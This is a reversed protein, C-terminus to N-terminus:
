KKKTAQQLNATTTQVVQEFAQAATSMAKQMVDLMQPNSGPLNKLFGQFADSMEQNGSALQETLLRSFEARASNGIEAFRSASELLRQTTESAFEARLKIIEEVGKASTQAQVSALSDRLLSQALETQLAMVHQANELAFQTLRTAAELNKRQMDAFQEQKGGM